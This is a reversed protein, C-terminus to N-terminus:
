GDNKVWSPQHRVERSNDIQNRTPSFFVGPAHLLKSFPFVILLVIVLLLHVFLPISIPLDVLKFGMLNVFFGQIAIIDPHFFLQMMLGSFGIVLLM